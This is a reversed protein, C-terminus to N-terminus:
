FIALYKLTVTQTRASGSINHIRITFGDAVYSGNGYCNFYLSDFVAIVFRPTRGGFDCPIAKTTNGSASVTLSWTYEGIVYDMEEGGGGTQIQRIFTGIGDVLTDTPVPVGKSEIASIIDAKGSIIRQLENETIQSM